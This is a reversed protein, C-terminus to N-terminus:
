FDTLQSQVGAVLESKRRLDALSVPLEGSLGRM